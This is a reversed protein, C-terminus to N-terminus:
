KEDKNVPKLLRPILINKREMEKIMEENKSSTINDKLLYNIIESGFSYIKQLSVEKYKVDSKCSRKIPKGTGKFVIKVD